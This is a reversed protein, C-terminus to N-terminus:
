LLSTFFTKEFAENALAYSEKTEDQATQTYQWNFSLEDPVRFGFFSLVQKQTAVAEKGNWNQGIAVIGAEIDALPNSEGLTSHRNEIWTLREILKQYEANMQGWRVSGFFVVTESAFLAKSVKWLEDTPNNLSAWCRHLGSPNKDKDLLLAKQLGCTNGKATSVNGECPFIKLKPIELVTVREEGLQKAFRYALRTSKPQEGGREGAWRNSTTLFLIKKKDKLRALFNETLLRYGTM